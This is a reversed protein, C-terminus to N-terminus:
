NNSRGGPPKYAARHSKLPVSGGQAALGLRLASSHLFWDLQHQLSTVPKGGRRRLGILPHGGDPDQLHRGFAGGKPRRKQHSAVNIYGDAEVRFGKEGGQGADVVKPPAKGM